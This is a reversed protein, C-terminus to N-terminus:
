REISDSSKLKIGQGVLKRYVNRVYNRKRTPKAEIHGEAKLLSLISQMRSLTIQSHYEDIYTNVYYSAPHWTEETEFLALVNLYERTEQNLKM